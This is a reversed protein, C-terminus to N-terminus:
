PNPLPNIVTPIPGPTPTPDNCIKHRLEWYADYMASELYVNPDEGPARMFARNSYDALWYYFYYQIGYSGMEALTTDMTGNGCLHPYGNGENHRAEHVLGATTEMLGGGWSGGTGPEGYVEPGRVGTVWVDTSVIFSGGDPHVPFHIIGANCCSPDSNEFPYDVGKVTSTFWDYLQKNTWPLPKSFQLYKMIIITQYARMQLKTLDASGAAAICVLTGATPDNEFTLKLKVNVDAVEAATPCRKFFDALTPQSSATPTVSAVSRNASQSCRFGYDWAAVMPDMSTRMMLNPISSNYSGGRLVKWKGSAAGQPNTAPDASFEGWWDSTWEWVNGIMDLAGYPSAGSPYSGGATTDKVSALINARSPDPSNNGWPYDQGSTGRAAMEWEAETPLRAGAWNCYDAADGWRVGIVPYNAYQPDGYYTARTFSKRLSPAQCAGAQVCKAYMATTVETQDIWYADLSVKHVPNSYKVASYGMMFEGAPVYVMMMGDAPRSLTDGIGPGTATANPTVTEAATSNSAGTTAASQAAPPPTQTQARSLNCGSVVLVVVLLFAFLIGSTSGIGKM